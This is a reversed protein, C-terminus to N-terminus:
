HREATRRGRGVVRITRLLRQRYCQVKVVFALAFAIARRTGLTRAISVARPTFTRAIAVTGAPGARRAFIIARTWIARRPFAGTRIAWWTFAFTRAGITRRAFASPRVTRPAFPFAGARTTWLTLHMAADLVDELSGRIEIRGAHGVLSSGQSGLSAAQSLFRAYARAVTRTRVARRTFTITGPGVTRGAFAITGTTFARRTFTITGPGIARRAFAVTRTSITRRTFTVTGTGISRWAFTITRTGIARAFTARTRGVFQTRQDAFQTPLHFVQPAFDTFEAALQLFAFLALSGPRAYCM